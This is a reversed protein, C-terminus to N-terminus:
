HLEVTAIHRKVANLADGVTLISQVETDTFDIKFETELYFFVENMELQNLGLDQLKRRVKLQAPTILFHQKFIKNFRQDIVSIMAKYSNQTSHHLVVSVKLPEFTESFYIEQM